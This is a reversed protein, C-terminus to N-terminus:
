IVSNMVIILAVIYLSLYCILLLLIYETLFTRTVDHIVYSVVAYTCTHILEVSNVINKTGLAM